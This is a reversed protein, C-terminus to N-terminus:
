KGTLCENFFISTLYFTMPISRSFLNMSFIAQVRRTIFFFRERLSGLYRPICVHGQHM